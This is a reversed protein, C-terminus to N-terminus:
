TSRVPHEQRISGIVQWRPASGKMVEASPAPVSGPLSRMVGQPGPGTLGLAALGAGACRDDVALRYLSGFLPAWPNRHPCSPSPACAGCLPRYGPATAPLPPADPCCELGPRRWAPTPADAPAIDGTLPLKPGVPGVAALQHLPGLFHTAPIQLQHAPGPLLMSELYQGPAPHHFAGEAPQVQLPTQALIILTQRFSRLGPDVSGHGSEHQAAQGPGWSILCGRLSESNVSAQATVKRAQQEVISAVRAAARSFERVTDDHLPIDGGHAILNRVAGMDHLVAALSNDIKNAQRLM